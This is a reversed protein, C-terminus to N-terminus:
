TPFKKVVELPQDPYPTFSSSVLLWPSGITPDSSIVSSLKPVEVVVSANGLSGSPSPRRSERFTLKLLKEEEQAQM